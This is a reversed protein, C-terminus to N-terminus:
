CSHSMVTSLDLQHGLRCPTPRLGNGSDSIVGNLITNKAWFLLFSPLAYITNYKTNTSHHWRYLGRM